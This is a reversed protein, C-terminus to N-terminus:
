PHYPKGSAAMELKRFPRTGNGKLCLHCTNVTAHKKRRREIKTRKIVEKENLFCKSLNDCDIHM